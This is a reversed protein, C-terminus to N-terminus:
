NTMQSRQLKAWTGDSMERYYIINNSSCGASLIFGNSSWKLTTAPQALQDIIISSWANNSYTWLKITSDDGCTAIEYRTFGPLPRWAIANCCCNHAEVPQMIPVWQHRENVGYIAFFGSASSAALYFTPADNPRDIFSYFGPPSWTVCTSPYESLRILQTNWQEQIGTTVSIMGESDAAAFILGSPAWAVSNIAAKHHSLTIIQSIETAKIKQYIFIHGNDDGVIFVTGLDIPGFSISTAYNSTPTTTAIKTYQRNENIEFVHVAGHESLVGLTVGDPSFAIDSIENINTIPLSVSPLSM